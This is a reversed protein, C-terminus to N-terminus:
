FAIYTATQFRFESFYLPDPASDVNELGFYSGVHVSLMLDLGFPRLLRWRHGVGGDVLNNWYDNNIDKFVRVEAIPQWAVPGTVLWGIAYRGRATAVLNHDFRSVYVAEAYLEACPDVAIVAERDDDGPAPHCRPTELFLMAGARFDLAVPPRGDDRLLNFAPAVQAFLALQRRWLALQVGAGFMLSNDAYILPQGTPGSGGRSSFDRSFQLFLYPELDVQDLPHWLARFRIMPVFNTNKDPVFRHWGYGEGYLDFRFTRPVNERAAKAERVKTSAAIQAERFRKRATEKDGREQALYGLEMAVVHAPAGEEGARHFAEEAGALDGAAKRDWGLQLWEDVTRPREVAEETGATAAWLGTESDIGPLAVEVPVRRIPAPGNGHWAEPIPIVVQSPVATGAASSSAAGGEVEWPLPDVDLSARARPAAARAPKSRSSSAAREPTSRRTTTGTAPPSVRTSGADATAASGPPVNGSGPPPHHTPWATSPTYSPPPVDSAVETPSESGDRWRAHGDSDVPDAKGAEPEDNWWCGGSLLCLAWGLALVIRFRREAANGLMQRGDRVETCSDARM